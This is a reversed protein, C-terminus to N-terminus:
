LIFDFEEYGKIKKFTSGTLPVDTSRRVKRNWINKYTKRSAKIGDKYWRGRKSGKM